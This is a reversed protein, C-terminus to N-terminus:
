LTAGSAAILSFGSHCHLGLMSKLFFFFPEPLLSLFLGPAPPFYSSAPVCPMRHSSSQAAHLLRCTLPIKFLSYSNALRLAPSATCAGPLLSALPKHFPMAPSPPLAGHQWLQYLPHTPQLLSSAESLATQLCISLATLM